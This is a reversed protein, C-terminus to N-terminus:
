RIGVAATGESLFMAPLTWFSGVFSYIGMTSICILMMSLVINSTFTLAVLCIAAASIPLGVHWRREMTKDSHRAVLVMAVVGCIYPITSLWGIETNSLKSSLAKLIQSMWTNLGYMAMIYGLYCFALHWVRGSKLVEWKSIKNVAM